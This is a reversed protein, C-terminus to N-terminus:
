ANESYEMAEILKETALKMDGDHTAMWGEAAIILLPINVEEGKFHGVFSKILGHASDMGSELTKNESILEDVNDNIKDLVADVANKRSDADMNDLERMATEFDGDNVIKMFEETNM